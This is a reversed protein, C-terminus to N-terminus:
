NKIVWIDGYVKAYAEESPDILLEELKEGPRVGIIQIKDGYKKALDIIRLRRANRPIFIEGGQMIESCKFLFDCIQDISLFYRYMEPSTVTIPLGHKKQYRWMDFISGDSNIYNPPRAVSFRTKHDDGKYLEADLALREALAKCRGYTSCAQVSKDSSIMIFKDVNADLAAEICIQTGMVNVDISYFPNREALDIHKQAAAHYCLTVNELARKMREKDRIDGLLFRIRPDKIQQSLRALGNENTDLIRVAKVGQFTLLHKALKRGLSGAGGTILIIEDTFTL